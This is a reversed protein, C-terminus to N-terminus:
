RPLEDDYDELTEGSKRQSVENLQRQLSLLNQQIDDSSLLGSSGTFHCNRFRSNSIETKLQITHEISNTNANRMPCPVPKSVNTQSLPPDIDQGQHRILISKCKLHLLRLPTM